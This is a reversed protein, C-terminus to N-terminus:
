GCALTMQTNGVTANTVCPNYLNIVIPSTYSKLDEFFKQYFLLARKLLSYIAETLKVYLLPKNKKDHIIYTCYLQPDIQVMLKALRGKLLMKKGKNNYAIPFAGPINITAVNCGEHADITTSILISNTAVMPSTGNEKKTVLILDNRAATRALAPM